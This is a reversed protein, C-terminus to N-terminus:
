WMKEKVKQNNYSLLDIDILVIGHQHNDHTDGLSREIQKLKVTLHDQSLNTDAVALVNLYKKTPHPVQATPRPETWIEELFLINPMLAKLLAKARHINQEPQTNSGLSLEIKM